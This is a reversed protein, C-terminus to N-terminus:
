AVRLNSLAVIYSMSIFDNLVALPFVVVRFVWGAMLGVEGLSRARVGCRSGIGPWAELRFPWVFM